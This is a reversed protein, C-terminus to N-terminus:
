PMCSEPPNFCDDKLEEYIKDFVGKPFKDEYQKWIDLNKISISPDFYKRPSIHHSIDVGIFDSVRKKTKEYDLVLDELRLYLINESQPRIRRLAKHMIIYQDINHTRAMEVGIKVRYKILSCYIGRPDRDVVIMKTGKGFYDEMRDAKQIPIPHHDLVLASCQPCINYLRDIYRRAAQFYRERTPQCFFPRDTFPPLIQINYKDLVHAIRSYMLQFYSHDFLYAHEYSYYRFDTIDNIFDYTYKMFDKGFWKKYDMGYSKFISRTPNCGKINMKIFRDIAESVKCLDWDDLIAHELELLGGADRIGFYDADFVFVDDFEKLLDIVASSGSYGYGYIIIYNRKKGTEVM